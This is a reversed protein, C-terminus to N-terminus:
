ASHGADGSRQIAAGNTPSLKKFHLHKLADVPRPDSLVHADSLEMTSIQFCAIKSCIFWHM